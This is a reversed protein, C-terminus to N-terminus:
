LASCRNVPWVGVYRKDVILGVGLAEAQFAAEFGDLNLIQFHWPSKVVSTESHTPSASISVDKFDISVHRSDASLTGEGGDVVRGEAQCGGERVCPGAAAGARAEVDGETQM